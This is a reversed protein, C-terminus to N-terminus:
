KETVQNDVRRKGTEQVIQNVEAMKGKPITGRITVKDATAEVTVDTFGKKSLADKVTKEVVADRVPAAQTPAAATNSGNTNTKNANVNAKDDGGCGALGAVAALSLVALFKFKM